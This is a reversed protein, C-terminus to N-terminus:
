TRAPLALATLGRLRVRLPAGPELKQPGSTPGPALYEIPRTGAAVQCRHHEHAPRAESVGGVIGVRADATTAPLWTPTTCPSTSIPPHKDLLDTWNALRRGSLAGELCM